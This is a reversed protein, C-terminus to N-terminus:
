RRASRRSSAGPLDWDEDYETMTAYREVPPAGGRDIQAFGPEALARTIERMRDPRFNFASSRTAPRIARRGASRPRPSSSTPRAASTPPGSRPRAARRGRHEGRGHVLLDYARQTRDWRKDRDMAFYRGIVTGVRGTGARSCWAEVSRSSAPAPRRCRTAGTPSPTSSSTRSARVRAGARHLAELHRDASHVGGDSVLGILHVRPAGRVADRLVENEALSGDEVADDIRTLDQKVIAGAGLNLHGVESNGMQGDPLGVSAGCATLQTHPYREWLEDFM